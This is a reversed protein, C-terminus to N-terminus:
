EYMYSLTSMCAFHVFRDAERCQAGGWEAFDRLISLGQGILKAACDVMGSDRGM